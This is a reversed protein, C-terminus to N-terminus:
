AYLSGEGREVIKKTRINFLPLKDFSAIQAVPPPVRGEWGRFNFLDRFSYVHKKFPMVYFLDTEGLVSVLVADVDRLDSGDVFRSKAHDYRVGDCEIKLFKVSFDEIDLGAKGFYIDLYNESPRYKHIESALEVFASEPIEPALVEEVVWASQEAEPREASSAFRLQIGTNSAPPPAPAPPPPASAPSGSVYSTAFKPEFEGPEFDSRRFLESMKALMEMMDKGRLNRVHVPKVLKHRTVASDREDFGRFYHRMLKSAPGGQVEKSKLHLNNNPIIYIQGTPGVYFCIEGSVHECSGEIPPLKKNWRNVLIEEFKAEQEEPSREYSKAPEDVLVMEIDSRVNNSTDEEPDYVEGARLAAVEAQLSAVQNSLDLMMAELRVMRDNEPSSDLDGM